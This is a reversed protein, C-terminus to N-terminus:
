PPPPLEWGAEAVPFTNGGLLDKGWYFLKFTPTERPFGYILLMRSPNPAAPVPADAPLLTGDTDLFAIHPDSGYSISTKGDVIEIDDPDFNPTHGSVTLDVAVLRAQAVPTLHSYGTYTWAGNVTVYGTGLGQAQQQAMRYMLKGVAEEKSGPVPAPNNASPPEPILAVEEEEKDGCASLLLLGAAMFCFSSVPPPLFQTM